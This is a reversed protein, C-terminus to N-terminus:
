EPGPTLNTTAWQLEDENTAAVVAMCLARSSDAPEGGPMQLLGTLQASLRLLIPVSRDLRAVPLLLGHSLKFRRALGQRGVM